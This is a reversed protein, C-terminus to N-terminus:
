LAQFKLGSLRARECAPVWVRRRWNSYHLPEGGPSVFVLVDAAAGTLGRRRLDEALLDLLDQPAGVTRSSQWKPDGTVMRGQLGRTRQTRVTVTRGLFDISGVQLGACEGWRLGLVAALYVMSSGCGALLPRGLM